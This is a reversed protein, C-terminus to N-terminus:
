IYLKSLAIRIQFCLNKSKKKKEELLSRLAERVSVMGRSTGSPDRVFSIRCIDVLFRLALISEQEKNEEKIIIEWLKQRIFTEYAWFFGKSLAMIQISACIKDYSCTNYDKDDDSSSTIFDYMAKVLEDDRVIGKKISKQKELSLSPSLTYGDLVFRVVRDILLNSSTQLSTSVNAAEYCIDTYTKDSFTTCRLCKIIVDKTEKPRAVAVYASFLLQIPCLTDKEFMRTMIKMKLAYLFRQLAFRKPHSQSKEKAYEINSKLKKVSESSLLLIELIEDALDKAARSKSMLNKYVLDDEDLNYQITSSKKRKKRDISSLQNTFLSLNVMEPDLRRKKAPSKSKLLAANLEQNERKLMEMQKKQYKGVEELKDMYEYLRRMKESAKKKEKM